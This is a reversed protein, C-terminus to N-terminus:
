LIFFVHLSFSIFVSAHRLCSYVLVPFSLRSWCLSSFQVLISNPVLTELPPLWVAALATCCTRWEVLAQESLKVLVRGEQHQHQFQSFTHHTSSLFSTSSIIKIASQCAQCTQVKRALLLLLRHLLSCAYSHALIHSWLTTGLVTCKTPSTSYLAQVLVLM